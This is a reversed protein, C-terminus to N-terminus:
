FEIKRIFHCTYGGPNKQLYDQHFDEAKWFETAPVIQTVVPSQWAGSKEVRQKILEAEDQQERNLYFIASRYQTGIDNGQRDVTTPDHMKFFNLLINSYTIQAPDFTIKVSEAHGTAGTKVLNYTADKINGGMYGAEVDKVGPIKRLLDELGWFCGGALYAIESKNVTKKGKTQLSGIKALVSISFLIVIISSWIRIKM